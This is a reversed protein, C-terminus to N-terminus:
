AGVRLFERFKRGPQVQQLFLLLDSFLSLVLKLDVQIFYAAFIKHEFVNIADCEESNRVVDLIHQLVVFLPPFLLRFLKTVTRELFTLFEVALNKDLLEELSHIFPFGLLKL